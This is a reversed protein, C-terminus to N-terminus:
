IYNITSIIFVYAFLSISSGICVITHQYCNTSCHYYIPCSELIWWCALTFFLSFMLLLKRMLRFYWQDINSVDVWRQEVAGYAADEVVVVIVLAMEVLTLISVLVILVFFNRCCCFHFSFARFLFTLDAYTNRVSLKEKWYLQKVM